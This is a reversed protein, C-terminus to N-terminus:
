PAEQSENFLGVLLIGQDAGFLETEDAVDGRSRQPGAQPFYNVISDPNGNPTHGALLSLLSTEETRCIQELCVEEVSSVDKFSPFQPTIGFCIQGNEERSQRLYDM